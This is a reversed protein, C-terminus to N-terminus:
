VGLYSAYILGQSIRWESTFGCSVRAHESWHLSSSSSLYGVAPLGRVLGVGTALARLRSFRWSLGRMARIDRIRLNVRLWDRGGTNKRVHKPQRTYSLVAGVCPAQQGATSPLLLPVVSPSLDSCWLGLDHRSLPSLTSRGSVSWSSRSFGSRMTISIPGFRQRRVLDDLSSLAESLNLDCRLSSSVDQTTTAYSSLLM